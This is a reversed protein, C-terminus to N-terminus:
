SLRNAMQQRKQKLMEEVNPPLRREYVKEQMSGNTPKYSSSHSDSQNQKYSSVSEYDEPYHTGTYTNEKNPDVGANYRMHKVEEHKSYQSFSNENDEFDEVENNGGLNEREIQDIDEVEEYEEGGEGEVHEEYYQAEPNSRIRELEKNVERNVIENIKESMFDAKSDILETREQELTEMHMKQEEVVQMLEEIKEDANMLKMPMDENGIQESSFPPYRRGLMNQNDNEEGLREEGEPVELGNEKIFDELIHIRETKYEISIETERHIKDYADLEEQLQIITEDRENLRNTLAIMIDRQKILLQKYRDVQTKEEEINNREHEIEKLKEDYYERIQKHKKELAVRFQPTEEMRKGGTLMQSHMLKIKEELKMKEEREIMYERSRVELANIAAAKDEEARRKEEELEKVAIPDGHGFSKKELEQKLKRLEVEYKRLLARQDVDENIRADNKIKKARMGFKLTSSTESFAEPAPSVMMM